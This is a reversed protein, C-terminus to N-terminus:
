LENEAIKMLPQIQFLADTLSRISLADLSHLPRTCILRLSFQQVVYVTFCFKYMCIYEYRTFEMLLASLHVMMVIWMVPMRSTAVILATKESSTADLDQTHVDILQLVSKQFTESSRHEGKGYLLPIPEGLVTQEAITYNATYWGSAELLGM